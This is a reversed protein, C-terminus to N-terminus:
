LHPRVRPDCLANRPGGVVAGWSIPILSWAGAGGGLVTCCCPRSPVQTASAVSASALTSPLSAAPQPLPAHRGPLEASQPPLPRPHLRRRRCVCGCWAQECRCPLHWAGGDERDASCNAISESGCERPPQSMVQLLPQTAAGGARGVGGERVGSAWRGAGVSGLPLQVRATGLLWALLWCLDPATRGCAFCRQPHASQLTHACAVMDGFWARPRAVKSATVLDFM